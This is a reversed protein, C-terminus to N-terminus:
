KQIAKEKKQITTLFAGLRTGEPISGKMHPLELQCHCNVFGPIIIGDHFEVAPKETFKSGTDEVDTVTGDDSTTIIGNKLPPGVNTFILHASFRRM